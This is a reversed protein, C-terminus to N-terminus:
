VGLVHIVGGRVFDLIRVAVSLGFIYLHDVVRKLELIVGHLDIFVIVYM